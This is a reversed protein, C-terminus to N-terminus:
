KMSLSFWDSSGIQLSDLHNLGLFCHSLPFPMINYSIYIILEAKGSGSTVTHPMTVQVIMVIPVFLGPSSFLFSTSSSTM